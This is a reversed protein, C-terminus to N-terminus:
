IQTHAWQIPFGNVLSLRLRLLVEVQILLSTIQYVGHSTGNNLRGM